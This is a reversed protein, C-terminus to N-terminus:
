PAMGMDETLVQTMEYDFTWFTKLRAVENLEFEAHM